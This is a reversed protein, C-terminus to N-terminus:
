PNEPVLLTARPVSETIRMGARAGAGKLTVLVVAGGFGGGTMRAGLVGEECLAREVLRDVEPVSVEFDDRLSEHSRVFLRGLEIADGARLARVAALVRANETIVHRARSNLPPDLMEADKLRGSADRLEPVGLERAARECEARRLRYEGSAHEHKVGSDIVVLDMTDLVPVREVSLTRTDIFLATHEDALSAALPDMIGVPVGVFDNEARQALTALAVDDISIDFAARLARLLAVELAASSALGSGIPVRSSVRADFGSVPHGALALTRTIGQIYDLWGRGSREQGLTYSEPTTEERSTSLARVTDGARPSLEIRTRQPTAVPLVFGGNYDTHEGILNVRGPAEAVFAPEAGFLTAFSVTSSTAPSRTV